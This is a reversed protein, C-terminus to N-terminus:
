YYPYSLVEEWKVEITEEILTNYFYPVIKVNTRYPYQTYAAYKAEELTEFVDLYIGNSFTAYRKKIEEM